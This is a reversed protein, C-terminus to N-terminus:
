PEVINFSGIGAYPNMADMISKLADEDGEVHVCEKLRELDHSMMLLIAPKTGKLTITPDEAQMGEFHLLPGNKIHLLYRKDEDTLTVNIKIDSEAFAHKDLGIGFYDWLMDATLSSDIDCDRDANPLRVALNGERLERAGTLYCCRWTGSEAQYGLQELADACLLRAAENTPDDFVLANTIQAVWQYNGDEFDKKARELVADTDGLYEVLKHAYDVPPMEALHIPNADYWGMFRQYTAKADHSVTGYYPRTYWNRQLAEPLRIQHSIETSVLGDQIYSLTQDNIFKYAAATNILYDNVVENGWHPWNHSQFAVEAEAGWLAVAECIYNAWANGDRVQAGRLTYLNHLTGTCNEAVWLAHFDPLWTNMEAPAETDPTLQFVMRVGDIVLETGTAPVEYSPAIYSITGIPQASGIGLALAGRAGKPIYVGYQYAARRAMAAGVYLNESAVYHTFEPPVVIPVKDGALQEELSMDATAADAKDILGLVGGYHDVHTHSIVVGTIPREGLHENALALAAKSGEVTMMTDFVIWGRKGEVLTLNAIDYGRVQYIGDVVKFLGYVHNNRTNEWLSPNATAPAKADEVFEYAKQSWVVKGEDDRIELSEPAAILGRTANEWESTDDFDLKGYWAENSAATAATADKVLPTLGFRSGCHNCM